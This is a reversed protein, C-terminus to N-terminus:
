GRCTHRDLVLLAPNTGDGKRGDEKSLPRIFSGTKIHKIQDRGVKFKVRLPSGKLMNACESFVIKSQDRKTGATYVEALEKNKSATVSIEYLSIGSEIQSKLKNDRPSKIGRKKGDGILDAYM